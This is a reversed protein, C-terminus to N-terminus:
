NWALTYMECFSSGVKSGHNQTFCSIWMVADLCTSMSQTIPQPLHLFLFEGTPLHSGTFLDYSHTALSWRRGSDCLKCGVQASCFYLCPSIFMPWEQGLAKWVCVTHLLLTTNFRCKYEVEFWLLIFSYMCVYHWCRFSSCKNLVFINDLPAKGSCPVTRNPM